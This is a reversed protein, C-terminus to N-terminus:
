VVVSQQAQSMAEHAKQTAGTRQTRGDSLSGHWQSSRDTSSTSMILRTWRYDHPLAEPDVAHFNRFSFQQLLPKPFWISVNSMVLLFHDSLWPDVMRVNVIISSWDLLDITRHSCPWSTTRPWTVWLCGDVAANRQPTHCVILLGPWLHLFRKKRKKVNKIKDVNKIKFVNMSFEM